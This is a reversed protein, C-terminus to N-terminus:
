SFYGDKNLLHDLNPYRNSIKFNENDILIHM